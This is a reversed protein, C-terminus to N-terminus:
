LTASLALGASFNKAGDSTLSRRGSSYGSRKEDSLSAGTEAKLKPM